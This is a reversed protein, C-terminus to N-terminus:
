EMGFCDRLDRLAYHMRVGADNASINMLEGIEAYKMKEWYKLYVIERQRPSLRDMCFALRKKDDLDRHLECANKDEGPPDFTTPDVTVPLRGSRVLEAVRNRCVTHLWAGVNKIKEDKGELLQKYFQAFAFLVVEEATTLDGKLLGRSYALLRAEYKTTAEELCKDIIKRSDEM